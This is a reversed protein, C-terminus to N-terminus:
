RAPWTCGGSCSALAGDMLVQVGIAVAHRQDLMASGCAPDGPPREAPHREPNDDGPDVVVCTLADEGRRHRVGHHVEDPDARELVESRTPIGVVRHPDARQKHRDHGYDDRDCPSWSREGASLLTGSRGPLGLVAYTALRPLSIWRAEQRQLRSGPATMACSPPPRTLLTLAHLNDM